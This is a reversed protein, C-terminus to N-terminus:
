QELAWWSKGNLEFDHKMLTVCYTTKPEFYQETQNYHKEHITSECHPLDNGHIKQDNKSAFFDFLQTRITYLFNTSYRGYFYFFLNFTFIANGAKHHMSSM